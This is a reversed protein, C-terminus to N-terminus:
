RVKQSSITDMQFLRSVHMVLINWAHMIEKLKHLGSHGSKNKSSFKKIDIVDDRAIDSDSGASSSDSKNKCAQIHLFLYSMLDIM